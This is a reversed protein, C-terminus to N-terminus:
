NDHRACRGSARARNRCRRGESLMTSCYIDNNKVTQETTTPTAAQIDQNAASPQEDSEGSPQNANTNENDQAAPIFSDEMLQMIEDESKMNTPPNNNTTQQMNKMEAQKSRALLDNLSNTPKPAAQAPVPTEPPATSATPPNPKQDTEPKTTPTPTVSTAATDTRKKSSTTDKDSRDAEKEDRPRYIIYAVIAIIIIVVVIILVIIRNEYISTFIGKSATPASALATGANISGVGGGIMNPMNPADPELFRPKIEVSDGM